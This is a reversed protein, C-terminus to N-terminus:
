EVLCTSCRRMSSSLRQEVQKTSHTFSTCKKPATKKEGCSISRLRSSRMSLVPATYPVRRCPHPSASCSRPAPARAGCSPRFWCCHGSSDDGKPACAARCRGPYSRSRCPQDPRARRPAALGAEPVAAHDCRVRCCCGGACHLRGRQGRVPQARAALMLWIGGALAFPLTAM